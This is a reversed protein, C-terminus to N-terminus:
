GECVERSKFEVYQETQLKLEPLSLESQVTQNTDPM